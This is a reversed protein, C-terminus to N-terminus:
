DKEEEIKDSLLLISGPPVNESGVSFFFVIFDYVSENLKELDVM